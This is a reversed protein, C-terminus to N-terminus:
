VVLGLIDEPLDQWHDDFGLDTRPRLSESHISTAKYHGFASGDRRQKRRDKADYSPALTSLFCM